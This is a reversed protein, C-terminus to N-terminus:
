GLALPSSQAAATSDKEIGYKKVLKGFARREKGSERAAASVNGGTKRLAWAVYSREFEEIACAKAANFSLSFDKDAAERASEPSPQVSLGADDLSIEM